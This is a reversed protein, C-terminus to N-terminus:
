ERSLSVTVSMGVVVASPAHDMTFTVNYYTSGSVNTPVTTILYIRGPVSVGAANIELTASQGVHIGTM